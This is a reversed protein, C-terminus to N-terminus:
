PCIIRMQPARACSTLTSASCILGCPPLIGTKTPRGGSIRPDAKGTARRIRESVAGCLELDIHLLDGKEEDHLVEGPVLMEEHLTDVLSARKEIILGVISM